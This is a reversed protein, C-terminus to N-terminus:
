HSEIDARLGRADKAASRLLRLRDDDRADCSKVLSDVIAELSTFTRHKAADAPYKGNLRDGNRDKASLIVTPPHIYHTEDVKDRARTKRLLALWLKHMEVAVDSPIQRNSAEIKVSALSSQLDVRGYFANVVIDNIEPRAQRVMLWYSRDTKQYITLGTDYPPDGIIQFYRIIWSSAPFLLRECIKAFRKAYPAVTDFNPSTPLLHQESESALLLACPVTTLMLVAFTKSLIIKESIM